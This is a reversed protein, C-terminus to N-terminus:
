HTLQNTVEVSMMRKSRKKDLFRLNPEDTYDRRENGDM